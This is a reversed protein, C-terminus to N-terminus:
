ELKASPRDGKGIMIKWFWNLKVKEIEINVFGTALFLRKLEESTSSGAHAREGIKGAFDLLRMLLYDNCIDQVILTGGCKLSRYVESLIEKKRAFHHFANTSLVLDFYDEYDLSSGSGVKFEVNEFAFDVLKQKAQDIMKESLDLGIVEGTGELKSAIDITGWGTGCALDLIKMGKELHMKDIVLIQARRQFSKVIRSEDYGKAARDFEKAVYEEQQGRNM